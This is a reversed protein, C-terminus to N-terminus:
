QLDRDGENKKVGKILKTKGSAVDKGFEMLAVGFEEETLGAPCEIEVTWRTLDDEWGVSFEVQADQNDGM